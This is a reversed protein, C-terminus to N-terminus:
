SVPRVLTNIFSERAEQLAAANKGLEFNHGGGPLIRADLKPTNTFLGAVWDFTPRGEEIGRWGLEYEAALFQLPVQPTNSSAAIIHIGLIYHCIIKCSDAACDRERVARVM